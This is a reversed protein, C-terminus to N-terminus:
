NRVFKGNYVFDFPYEARHEWAEPLAPHSHYVWFCCYSPDKEDPPIADIDNTVTKRTRGQIVVSDSFQSSQEKTTIEYAYDLDGNTSQSSVIQRRKDLVTVLLVLVFTDFKY